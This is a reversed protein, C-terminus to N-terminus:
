LRGAAHALGTAPLYSSQSRTWHEKRKEVLLGLSWTMASVSSNTNEMKEKQFHM